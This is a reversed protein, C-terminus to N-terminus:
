VNVKIIDSTFFFSSKSFAVYHIIHSIWMLHFRVHITMKLPFFSSKTSFLYFMCRVVHWSNLYFLSCLIQASLFSLPFFVFVFLRFLLAKMRQSRKSKWLPLPNRQPRPLRKQPRRPLQSLNLPLSALLPPPSSMQTQSLPPLLLPLWPNGGATLLSHPRSKTTLGSSFSRQASGTSPPFPKKPLSSTTTSTVM